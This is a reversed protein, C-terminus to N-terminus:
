AALVSLWAATFGEPAYWSGGLALLRSHALRGALGDIDAGANGVDDDDADDDDDDDDEDQPHDADDVDECAPAALTLALFLLSAPSHLPQPTM